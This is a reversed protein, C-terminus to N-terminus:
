SPIEKTKTKTTKEVFRHLSINSNNRDIMKREGIIVEGFVMQPEKTEEDYHLIAYAEALTIPARRVFCLFKQTTKELEATWDGLIKDSYPDIASKPIIAATQIPGLYQSM